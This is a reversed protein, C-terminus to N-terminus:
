KKNMKEWATVIEKNEPVETLYKKRQDSGLKDAKLILLSYSRSLYENAELPENMKKFAKSLNWLAEPPVAQLDSTSIIMKLKSSTQIAASDLSLSAQSLCLWSLSSILEIRLDINEFIKAAKEYSVIAQDYENKSYYCKGANDYATALGEQDNLDICIQIARSLYDLAQEYDGHDINAVSINNLRVMQGYKDDLEQDISLARKWFELTKGYDGLSYHIIGSNNLASAEGARDGIKSFIEMTYDSYILATDLQGIRFYVGALGRLLQAKESLSSKRDAIAIGERFVKMAARFEQKGKLLEGLTTRPPLFESDLEIAKQLFGRAIVIDEQTKRHGYHFAGKLYFEYADANLTSRREIEAEGIRTPTIGLSRAVERIVTAKIATVEKFPKEWRDSWYSQGSTPEVLQAAFRFQNGEKRFSGSLVFQVRLANAVDSLSKLSDRFRIVDKMPSVRVRGAKSLDIIIDETLGYSFYEDATSGLNQVYLVAVSPVKGSVTGGRQWPAFYLLGATLAVMILLIVSVQRVIHKRNGRSLIARFINEAGSGSEASRRGARLDVLMDGISTYRADRDKALCRLIVQELGAPLDRRLNNIPEPEVNLISYVIAMEHDGKFPLRQTLVEYLVVGLSWIDTRVDVEEGRAQEPSMYAATGLTSGAKTLRAQGALKALGFDLIKAVGDNTVIINAPKVDRHVIGKEHAKQLGQGIQIGIDICEDIPLQGHGIRSKLTEGDYCAMAIFLQGDETEGIEHINCINPHDLASATKAEHIFREKAEADRTLESPLFKLAVDRDLKTDQAKYIVGMGGEGLKELINYHSITTGIM